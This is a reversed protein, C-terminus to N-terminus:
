PAGDADLDRIENPQLPFRADVVHIHADFIM